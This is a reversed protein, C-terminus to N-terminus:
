KPSEELATTNNEIFFSVNTRDLFVQIEQPQNRGADNGAKHRHDRHKLRLVKGIAIAPVPGAM